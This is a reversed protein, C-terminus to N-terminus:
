LHNNKTNVSLYLKYTVNIGRGSNGEVVSIKVIYFQTFVNRPDRQAAERVAEKAQFFFFLFILTSKYFM